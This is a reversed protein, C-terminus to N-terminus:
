EAADSNCIKLLQAHLENIDAQTFDLNEPTSFHYTEKKIVAKVQYEGKVTKFSALFTCVSPLSKKLNILIDSFILRPDVKNTAQTTAQTTPTTPSM